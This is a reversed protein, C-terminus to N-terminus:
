IKAQNPREWYISHKYTIWPVVINEKISIITNNKKSLIVKEKRAQFGSNKWILPIGKM